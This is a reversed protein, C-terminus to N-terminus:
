FHILYSSHNRKSWDFVFGTSNWILILFLFRCLCYQQKGKGVLGHSVQMYYRCGLYIYLFCKRLTRFRYTKQTSLGCILCSHPCFASLDYSSSPEWEWVILSSWSLGFILSNLITLHSLHVSDAFRAFWFM